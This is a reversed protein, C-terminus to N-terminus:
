EIPKMTLKGAPGILYSTTQTPLSYNDDGDSQIRDCFVRFVLGDTFELELDHAPGTARVDVLTAGALRALGAITGPADHAKHVPGCIIETPADLRWACGVHLLIEGEHARLFEPIHEDILPEKLHFARGLHLTVLTGCSAETTAGLCPLGCLASLEHRFEAEAEIDPDRGSQLLKM